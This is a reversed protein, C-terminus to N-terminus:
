IYNAVFDFSFMICNYNRNPITMRKNIKKISILNAIFHLTRIHKM